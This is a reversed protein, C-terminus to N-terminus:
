SRELGARLRDVATDPFLTWHSSLPQPADAAPGAADLLAWGRGLLPHGPTTDAVRGPVLLDLDFFTVGVAARLAEREAPIDARRGADALAYARYVAFAPDDSYAPGVDHPAALGFRSRAAVEARLLWASAAGPGGSDPLSYWIDVLQGDEVTLTAAYRPLVPVVTCSGSDLQVLVRASRASGPLGVSVAHEGQETAVGPEAYAAAIRAGRVVLGTPPRDVASRHSVLRGAAEQAAQEAAANPRAASPQGRRRIFLRLRESPPSPVDRLDIHADVLHVAEEPVAADPAAVDPLREIQSLWAVRSDSAIHADPQQNATLTAHLAAARDAIRNPLADALLRPRVLGVVQGADAVPEVAEAYDGRLGAALVETYLAHYEDAEAFDRVEFAPEGLLCPYFLDVARSPGIVGTNPMIVSGTVGQANVTSAATRCADSMFVVHPIRGTSALDASKAVNVAANPNAPAASLLWFENRNNVIGHGCFYIVLQELTPLRTFANVADFVMDATVPRHDVDSIEAVHDPPIGQGAAWDRLAKVAGEVAPLLPLGGVQQVGIMVIAREM